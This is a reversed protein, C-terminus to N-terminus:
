KIHKYQNVEEWPVVFGAGKACFVSSAPNVLDGNPNYNIEAVVEEQNHCKEYGAHTLTMTGQGKTFVRLENIYNKMTSVPVKGSLTSFGDKSNDLTCSGKMKEIDNMVRGICLDPVSINFSYIPELLISKGMMLGHRIARYTSQRFDGGETHKLHARGAVVKIEMDTIPSGTLVGIHTKEKLHTLILRQWNTDLEDVSLKSVFRLGSGLPLPNLQLHVEAYHRLPEYHGVGIVPSEITEKYAIKGDGFSIDIGYRNKILQQIIQTQIEGMLVVKIEKNEESFTVKIEPLEDELERFIGLAKPVDLTPPLIVSYILVGEISFDFQNESEGFIMGAKSNKLGTVTCINGAKVEKVSEFKEGSYLRIENVKEEGLNDKVKLIGGNIKLHTLRNNQKDRSIKYVTASFQNKVQGPVFYEELTKILNEIGEMKLASGFLCPFIKRNSIAKQINSISIDNTELYEELLIEDCSAIEEKTATSFDLINGSFQNQLEELILAPNRNPMDMKNVFILTPIKHKKLLQWLTKTHSQIGDGANILLIAADLVQLSREMEASFDVHGPTDILTIKDNLIAEKSFVTIGREREISFNDLFSDKSDVRGFKWIAGSQFLLAESLTTKGADVHALIGTILTGM